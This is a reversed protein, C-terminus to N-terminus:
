AGLNANTVAFADRNADVVAAWPNSPLSMSRDGAAARAMPKYLVPCTVIDTPKHLGPDVRMPVSRQIDAKPVFRVHRSASGIDAKPPLASMVRVNASTQKQDLASM